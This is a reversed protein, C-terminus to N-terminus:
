PIIPPIYSFTTGLLWVLLLVVPLHFIFQLFTFGVLDRARVKLIALLPLMFFPNILNPLAEAMNYIQVTWGLNYQLDNAAQMVYPAEVLWKGGGSPVLLGLVATYIALVVAFGSGGGFSTFITALRDSVTHGGYGPVKTLMAAMAAYLPFQVLIGATAPVAKNVAMLFRRPTGHLVLGLVLFVMLYGNLNSLVQVVPKTAFQYVVWGLTLIGVGISLIPNYEFWEAPRTRPEPEEVTDTVDVEMQEATRVAKGRPASAYAIAVTVLILILASLMSQWTFITKGFDLVGTISLVAAPISKPTAQLQAASSSLGLAWVAGLGMLAAAGLARYDVQLDKRRAVARALLGGTILSLGWNLLSVLLAILAVFAVASRPGKPVRALAEIIRLVPPSTAVVYGTLVVMAMQLTFAALDWFGDGFTAVLTVPNGGNALALVAVLVTGFAAFVFADPFWKETFRALAQAARALPGQPELDADATSQTSM